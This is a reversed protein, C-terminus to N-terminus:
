VPADAQGPGADTDGPAGDSSGAAELRQRFAELDLAVARRAQPAVMGELMRYRLPLGVRISWRLLTGPGSPGDDPAVLAEIDVKIGDRDRGELGFRRDPEVITIVGELVTARGAIRQEIRVGAGPALPQGVIRQVRVIGSAILWEPYRELATLEAYVASVPRAIRTELEAAITM